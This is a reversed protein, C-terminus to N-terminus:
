ILGTSVMMGDLRLSLDSLMMIKFFEGRGGDKVNTLM